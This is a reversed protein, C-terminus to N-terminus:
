RTEEENEKPETEELSPDENDVLKELEEDRYTKAVTDLGKKIAKPVKMANKFANSEKIKTIPHIKGKLKIGEKITTPINKIKRKGAELLAVKKEQNLGTVEVGEIKDEVKAIRKMMRKEKGKLVSNSLDHKIELDKVKKKTKVSSMYEIMTSYQKNDNLAELIVPNLKRKLFFRKIRSSPEIQQILKDIQPEELIRKKDKLIEKLSSEIKYTKTNKGDKALINILNSGEKIEIGVIKEKELTQKTTAKVPQSQLQPENKINHIIKDAEQNLGEKINEIDIEEENIKEEKVEDIKTEETKEEKLKIDSKEILKTIKSELSNLQENKDVLQNNKEALEKEIKDLDESAEKSADGNNKIEALAEEKLRELRQISKKNSFIDKEINEKQEMLKKAETLNRKALSIEKTVKTVIEKEAIDIKVLEESIKDLDESAEKSGEGHNRIEKIAEEKSNNLSEKRIDLKQEKKMEEIKELKANELNNVKEELTKILEEKIKELDM